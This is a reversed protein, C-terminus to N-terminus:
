PKFCCVLFPVAHEAGLLIASMHDLWNALLLNLVSNQRLKQAPTSITGGAWWDPVRPQAESASAIKRLQAEITKLANKFRDDNRDDGGGTVGEGERRWGLSHQSAALRSVAGHGGACMARAKAKVRRQQQNITNRTNSPLSPRWERAQTSSCFPDFWSEKMPLEGSKVLPAYRQTLLWRDVWASVVSGDTDPPQASDGFLSQFLRSIFLHM